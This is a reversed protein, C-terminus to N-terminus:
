RRRGARAANLIAVFHWGISGFIALIAVPVLWPSLASRGERASHIIAQQIWLFLCVLEARLWAIMSLTIAEFRPRTAPTSPVPFNFASPYFSVLTMLAVVATAIIPFLWLMKPEGWGNVNGAADFHTAIRDPLPHPGAVAQYTMVWLGALAALAIVLLAKRLM